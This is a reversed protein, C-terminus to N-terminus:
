IHILSLNHGGNNYLFSEWSSSHTSLNIGINRKSSLIYAFPRNDHIKEGRKDVYINNIFAPNSQMSIIKKSNGNDFNLEIKVGNSSQSNRISSPIMELNNNALYLTEILSSKGSNNPGVLMNLGSGNTSGDPIAFKLSTLNKFSRIGQVSLDIISM